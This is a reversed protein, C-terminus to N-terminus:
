LLGLLFRYQKALKEAYAKTKQQSEAMEPASSSVATSDDEAGHEIRYKM